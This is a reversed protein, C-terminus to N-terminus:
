PLPTRLGGATELPGGPAQLGRQAVLNLDWKVKGCNRPDQCFPALGRCPTHTALVRSETHPQSPDASPESGWTGDGAESHVCSM